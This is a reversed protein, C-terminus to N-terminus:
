ERGERKKGKPKNVAPPPRHPSLLPWFDSTFCTVPSYAPNQIREKKKKKEKKESGRRGKRRKPSLLATGALTATSSFAVCRALAPVHCFFLDHEKEKRGKKKKRRTPNKWSGKQNKAPTLRFRRLFASLRIVVLSLIPSPSGCNNREEKKGGGEGKKKKKGRRRRGRKKERGAAM